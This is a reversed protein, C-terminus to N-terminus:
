ANKELEMEIRKFLTEKDGSNDLIVTARKLKEEEPMQCNMRSKVQQCTIKDREMVRRIRLEECATVVWISDALRDLGTEFLLPVDMFVLEEGAESVQKEIISVVKQTVIKELLKEREQNGFVQDALAQRNLTGDEKLIKKGFTQALKDVTETKGRTVQRSILDADIVRYNKSLLFQTVTSKGTGIGGTIGIVSM